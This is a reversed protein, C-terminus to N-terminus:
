HASRTVSYHGAKRSYLARHLVLTPHRGRVDPCNDRLDLYSINLATCHVITYHLATSYADQCSWDTWHCEKNCETHIEGLLFMVRYSSIFIRMTGICILQTSTRVASNSVWVWDTSVTQEARQRGKAEISAPLSAM